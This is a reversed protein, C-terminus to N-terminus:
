RNVNRADKGRHSLEATRLNPPEATQSGSNGVTQVMASAAKLPAYVSKPHLGIWPCLAALVVMPILVSGPAERVTAAASRSPM